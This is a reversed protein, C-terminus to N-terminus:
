CLFDISLFIFLIATYWDAFNNNSKKISIRFIFHTICGVLFWGAFNQFPPYARNEWVWLQHKVAFFELLIDLLVLLIAGVLIALFPNRVFRDALQATCYTLAVWNVAIILPVGMVSYGLTPTYHYAGFILGTRVGIIEAIFGSLFVFLIFVFYSINKESHTFLIICASYLLTFVSLQEFLRQSISLNLGVAGVIHIIVWNIVILKKHKELFSNM